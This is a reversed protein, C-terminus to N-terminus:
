LVFHDCYELISFNQYCFFFIDNVQSFLSKRLFHKNQIWTKYEYYTKTRKINIM